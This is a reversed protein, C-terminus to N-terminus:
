VTNGLLASNEIRYLALCGVGTLVFGPTRVNYGPLLTGSMVMLTTHQEYNLQPVVHLEESDLCVSKHKNDLM